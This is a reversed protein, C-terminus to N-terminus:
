QPTFGARAPIIWRTRRRTSSLRLLGRALPSSGPILRSKMGVLGYVGRSRPHDSEQPVQIIRSPTFGARAPIIGTSWMVGPSALPLGRALPSSGSQCHMPSYSVRYVGRSRPHDWALVLRGEEGATFGARAPIIRIEASAQTAQALLGRALPSSGGVARAVGASPVYVGRSRPHDEDRAPNQPLSRTFGARAPIIGMNFVGNRSLLHLGRALPSSGSFPSITLPM